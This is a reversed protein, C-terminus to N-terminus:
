EVESGGVLLEVPLRAESVAAESPDLHTDGTFRGHALDPRDRDVGWEFFDACKLAAVWDDLPDVRRQGGREPVVEM